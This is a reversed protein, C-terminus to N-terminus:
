LEFDEEFAKASDVKMFLNPHERKIDKILSELNNLNSLSIDLPSNVRQELRDIAVSWVDNFDIPLEELILKELKMKMNEQLVSRLTKMVLRSVETPVVQYVNKSEKDEIFWSRKSNLDFNKFNVVREGSQTDRKLELIAEEDLNLFGLEKAIKEVERM